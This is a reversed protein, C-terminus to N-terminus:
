AGAALLYAGPQGAVAAVVVVSDVLAAVAAAAAAEMQMVVVFATRRFARPQLDKVAIVPLPFAVQPRYEKSRKPM